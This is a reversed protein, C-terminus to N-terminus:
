QMSMIVALGITLIGSIATGVISLTLPWGKTRWNLIVGLLGLGAGIFPIICMLLALIAVFKAVFSVGDGLHASLDAATFKAIEDTSIRSTLKRRCQSCTVFTNRFKMLPIVYFLGLQEVQEFSTADVETSECRPCNIKVDPGPIQQTKTTILIDM